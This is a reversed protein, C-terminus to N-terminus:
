PTQPRQRHPRAATTTSVNLLQAIEAWTLGQDRADHIVKPLLRDAQATLSALIHLRVGADGLWYPTRLRSLAEIAENLVIASHQDVRPTPLDEPQVIRLLPQTM